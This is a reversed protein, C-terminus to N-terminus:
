NNTTLQKTQVKIKGLGLPLVDQYDKFDMYQVFHIYQSFRPEFNHNHLKSFPTQLATARYDKKRYAISCTTPNNINRVINLRM